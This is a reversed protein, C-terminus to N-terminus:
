KEKRTPFMKVLVAIIIKLIISPLEKLIKKLFSKM